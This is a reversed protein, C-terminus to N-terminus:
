NGSWCRFDDWSCKYKKLSRFFRKYTIFSVFFSDEIEQVRYAGSKSHPKILDGNLAFTNINFDGAPYACFQSNGFIDVLFTRIFYINPM